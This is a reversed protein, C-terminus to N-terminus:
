SFDEFPDYDTDDHGKLHDDDLDKYISKILKYEEPDREKLHLLWINQLYRDVDVIENQEQKYDTVIWLMNWNRNQNPLYGAVFGEKKLQELAKKLRKRGEKKVEGVKKSGASKDPIPYNIIQLLQSLYFQVFQQKTLFKMLAKANESLKKSTLRSIDIFTSDLHKLYPLDEYFLQLTEGIKVIIRKPNSKNKYYFEADALIPSFKTMKKGKIKSQLVVSCSILRKLSDKIVQYREENKPKHKLYEEFLKDIEELEIVVKDINSNEKLRENLWFRIIIALLPYDFRHSLRSEQVEIRYSDNEYVVSEGSSIKQNVEKKELPIFLPLRNFINIIPIANNSAIEGIINDKVTSINKEM